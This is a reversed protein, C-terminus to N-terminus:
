TVISRHNANLQLAVSAGSVNIVSIAMALSIESGQICSQFTLLLIGCSGGIVSDRKAAGGIFGSAHVFVCEPPHCPCLTLQQPANLNLLLHIRHFAM